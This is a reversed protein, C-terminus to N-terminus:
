GRAGKSVGVARECVFEEDVVVVLWLWVWWFGYWGFGCGCVVVVLVVEYMLCVGREFWFTVDFMDVEVPRRADLYAMLLGVVVEEGASFMAFKVKEELLFLQASTHSSSESSDVVLPWSLLLVVSQSDVEEFLCGALVFCQALM